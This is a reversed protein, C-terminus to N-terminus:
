HYKVERRRPLQFTGTLRLLMLCPTALYPRVLAALRLPEYASEGSKATDTRLWGQEEGGPGPEMGSRDLRKKNRGIKWIGDLRGGRVRRREGGGREGAILSPCAMFSPTRWLTFLHLCSSAGEKRGEERPEEWDEEEEEEEIDGEGAEDVDPVEAAFALPLLPLPRVDPPASTSGNRM